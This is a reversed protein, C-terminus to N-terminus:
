YIPGVAKNFRLKNIFFVRRHKKGETKLENVTEHVGFVYAYKGAFEYIGFRRNRMEKETKVVSNRNTRLTIRDKKKYLSGRSTVTVIKGLELALISITSDAQVTSRASIQEPIYSSTYKDYELSTDWLTKGTALDVQALLTHVYQLKYQAPSGQYVSSSNKVSYYGDASLTIQGNGIMPKHFLYNRGYRLPKGNQAKSMVKAKNKWRKKEPMYSFYNDLLAYPYFFSMEQGGPLIKTMFFGHSELKSYGHSYTGTFVMATDLEISRVDMLNFEGRDSIKHTKLVKGTESFKKYIHKGNAGIENLIVSFTNESDDVQIRELETKRLNLGQATVLKKTSLDLLTVNPLYNIKGGMLLHNGVFEFHTFDILFPLKFKIDSSIRRRRDISTLLYEDKRSEDILLLRLLGKHVDHAILKFESDFEVRLPPSPTLETDLWTIRWRNDYVRADKTEQFFVFFGNNDDPHIIVDEEELMFLEQEYHELQSISLSQAFTNGPRFLSYVLLIFVIAKLHPNWSIINLSLM